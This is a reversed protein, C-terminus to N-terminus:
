KINKFTKGKLKKVKPPNQFFRFSFSLLMKPSGPCMYNGTTKVREFTLSINSFGQKRVEVKATLDGTTSHAGVSTMSGTYNIPIGSPISTENKDLVADQKIKGRGM